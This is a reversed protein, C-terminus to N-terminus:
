AREGYQRDNAGIDQARKPHWTYISDAVLRVTADLYPEYDRESNPGNGFGGRVHGNKRQYYWYPVTATGLGGNIYREIIDQATDVSTTISSTPGNYGKKYRVGFCSEPERDNQRRKTMHDYLPVLEHTEGEPGVVEETARRPSTDAPPQVPGANWGRYLGYGNESLLTNDDLWVDAPSFSDTPIHDTTIVFLRPPNSASLNFDVFADRVFVDDALKVRDTM